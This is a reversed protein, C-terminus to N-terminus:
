TAVHIEAVLGAILVGNEMDPGAGPLSTQTSQVLM